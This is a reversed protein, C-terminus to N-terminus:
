PYFLIRQYIKTNSVLRPVDSGHNGSPQEQAKESATEEKPSEPM